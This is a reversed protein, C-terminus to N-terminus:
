DACGPSRSSKEDIGKRPSQNWTWADSSEEKVSPIVGATLSGVATDTKSTCASIALLLSFGALVLLVSPWESLLLKM